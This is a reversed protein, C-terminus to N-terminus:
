LSRAAPQVERRRIGALQEADAHLARRAAGVLGLRAVRLITAVQPAMLQRPEVGAPLRRRSRWASRCCRSARRCTSGTTPPTCAIPVARRDGARLRPVQLPAGHEGALVLRRHQGRHGGGVQLAVQPGLHPRDRDMRGADHELLRERGAIGIEGAELVLRCGIALQRVGRHGSLSFRGRGHSGSSLHIRPRADDYSVRQPHPGLAM